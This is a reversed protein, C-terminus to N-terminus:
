VSRAVVVAIATLSVSNALLSKEAFSKAVTAIGADLGSDSTVLPLLGALLRGSKRLAIFPLVMLRAIGPTPVPESISASYKRLNIALAGAWTMGNWPPAGAMVAVM